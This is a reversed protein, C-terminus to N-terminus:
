GGFREVTIYFRGKKSLGGIERLILRGQGRVSLIDGEALQRDPKMCECGNLSVRGAAILDAAKGRSISFGSGLVADLRLSAVTDRVTKGGAAPIRLGSLPIEVPHLGTRGASLWNDRLFPICERLAIVDCGNEAVLIDGLVERRVGQAMLSGLIDRHSLVAGYGWEARIAGFPLEEEPISEADMYDPLFLMVCREAEPHGGMIRHPPEGCCVVVQRAVARQHPTLFMTHTLRNQRTCQELKDAIQAATMRDEGSFAKLFDRDKPMTPEKGPNTPASPGCPLGGAAAEVAGGDTEAAGFRGAPRTGAAQLPRRLLM